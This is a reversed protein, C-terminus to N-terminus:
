YFLRRVKVNQTRRLLRELRRPSLTTLGQMLQDAHAFSIGDPVDALLELYAREPSSRTLTWADRRKSRPLVDGSYLKKLGTDYADDVLGIGGLDTLSTHRTFEVDAVVGNVWKPLPDKGYLHVTAKGSLALYHGLGKLELATLGGPTLDTKLVHQLSCVVGEWTPTAGPRMYVGHAVSTLQGSKVLNDV